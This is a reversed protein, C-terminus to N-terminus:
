KGPPGAKVPKAPTFSSSPKVNAPDAVLNTSMGGGDHVKIQISDTRQTNNLLGSTLNLGNLKQLDAQSAITHKQMQGNPGTPLDLIIPSNKLASLQANSMNNIEQAAATVKRLHTKNMVRGALSNSGDAGTSSSPPRIGDPADGNSSPPRVGDPADGETPKKTKKSPIVIEVRIDNGAIKEDKHVVSLQNGDRNLDADIGSNATVNNVAITANQTEEKKIQDVRGGQLSASPLGNKSMGGGGGGYGGDKDINDELTNAIIAGEAHVNGAGTESVLHAGTLEIDGGSIVNLEKSATIGSQEATVQRKDWDKGGSAGSSGTPVIGGASSLAAGVSANWSGTTHEADYTDQVSKIEIGKAADVNATDVTASAGEMTLKGAAKITLNDANIISNDHSTGESKSKDVTGSAGASLGGGCGQQTCGASATFGAVEYDASSETKTTSKAAQINVDGASILAVEKARTAEVGDPLEGFKVGNLNMDGRTTELTINGNFYNINESTSKSSSSKKDHSVGLTSSAGALEGYALQTANGAVQLATLGPDIDMGDLEKKAALKGATTAVDVISSHGEGMYGVFVEERTHSYEQQDEYKTTEITAASIKLTPQEDAPQKAAERNIDAGGFDANGGVKMSGSGLNLQSNHNKLSSSTKTDTITSFGFRYKYGSTDGRGAGTTTGGEYGPNDRLIQDAPSRGSQSSGGEAASFGSSAEYGGAGVSAGAVFAVTEVTKKAYDMDQGTVVNLDGKIDVTSMKANIDSGTITANGGVNLTLNGTNLNSGTSTAQASESETKTFYGIGTEVESTFSSSTEHVDGMTFDGGTTIALSGESGTDVDAGTIAMNGGATFNINDGTVSADHNSLVSGASRENGKSDKESGDSVFMNTQISIDGGAKVDVTGSETDAKISAGTLKVDNKADLEVDNGKIGSQSGVTSSINIDGESKVSVKGGAELVGNGISVNSADINIDRNAAIRSGTYDGSALAELSKKSLYVKPALVTEGDIIQPEYWVIDEELRDFQAQTLAVGPVLGLRSSEKFANDMLVGVKQNDNLASYLRGAAQTINRTILEHDFYADGLLRAGAPIALSKSTNSNGDSAPQHHSVSIDSSIPVIIIHNVNNSSQGAGIQSFFYDAGRYQDQEIWDLRTSYLPQNYSDEKGGPSKEFLLNNNTLSNQVQNSNITNLLDELTLSTLDKLNFDVQLDPTLTTTTRDGVNVSVSQNQDEKAGGNTTLAGGTHTFNRGALIEAAGGFFNLYKPTNSNSLTVFNNWRKEAEDIKIANADGGFIVTFIQNFTPSKVAANKFANYLFGKHGDNDVLAHGAQSGKGGTIGADIAEQSGWAITKSNGFIFNLMHYLSTFTVGADDYSSHFNDFDLAYRSSTKPDKLADLLNIQKGAGSNDLNGDIYINETAQVSGTNKISAQRGKQEDQNIKLDKGAQIVAFNGMSLNNIYSPVKMYVDFDHWYYAPGLAIVHREDYGGYSDVASMTVDGITASRNTLVRADILINGDSEVRGGYNDIANGAKLTLTGKAAIGSNIGNNINNTALLTVDKAGWIQSAVGNQNLIDTAELTIYKAAAIGGQNNLTNKIEAKIAGPNSIEAGSKVNLNDAQITLLEVALPAHTNEDIVLDYGSNIKLLANRDSKMLSTNHLQNTIVNLQQQTKVTAKDLNTVIDAILSINDGVMRAQALNTIAEATFNINIAQLIANGQNQASGSIIDLTNQAKISGDTFNNFIKNNTLSINNAEIRGQNQVNDSVMTLVNQAKAYGPGFNNFQRNNTLAIDRAELTGSNDISDGQMGLTTAASVAGGALNQLNGKLDVKNGTMEGQNELAKLDTALANSAVIQGSNSLGADHGSLSINQKAGMYGSNAHKGSALAGSVSGKESVINARNDLTGANLVIDADTSYIGDCLFANGQADNDCHNNLAGTTTIQVARSIIGGRNDVSGSQITIGDGSRGYTEILGGQNVLSQSKLIVNNAASLIGGRYDPFVARWSGDPMQVQQEGNRWVVKLGAPLPTSDTFFWESKGQLTINRAIDMYIDSNSTVSGSVRVSDARVDIDNATLDGEVWLQKGATIDALGGVTIRMQRKPVALRVDGQSKLTLANKVALDQLTINDARDVRMGGDSEVDALRVDGNADIVLDKESYLMGDHSIGAGKETAVLTVYSGYMSGAASGSIGLTGGSNSGSTATTQWSRKGSGTDYTYQNLGTLVQIDTDHGRSDVVGQLAVGRAVVDFYSSDTLDVGGLVVRGSTEDVALHLQDTPSVSARAAAATFGRTNILQVNDLTLGNPNAILLDAKVGLVELGGKLTSANPGTVEALISKAERGATLNPNGAVMQQQIISPSSGPGNNFILGKDANLELFKNHSLGNSGPATINIVPTNGPLVTPRQHAPAAPDAQILAAQVGGPSLLAAILVALPTLYLTALQAVKVGRCSSTHRAVRMHEAVPIVFGQVRSFILRFCNKNM